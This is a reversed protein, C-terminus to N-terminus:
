EVVGLCKDVVRIAHEFPDRGRYPSHKGFYLLDLLKATPAAKNGGQSNRAWLNEGAYTLETMTANACRKRFTQM